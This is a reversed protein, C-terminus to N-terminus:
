QIETECNLFTDTGSGGVCVDTDKGGAIIDNGSNGLICDTGEQGDIVDNGSSGLILDNESTGTITGSGQVIYKLDLGSCAEPKLDNATVTISKVGIGSRAITNSAAYASVISVTILAFLGVLFIKFVILPKM